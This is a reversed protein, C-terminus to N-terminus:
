GGRWFDAWWESHPVDSELVADAVEDGSMPLHRLEVSLLDENSEILAYQAGSPNLGVSGPNLLIEEGHRRVLQEHTHGGAMVTAEHGSLMEDLEEDPTAAMIRDSFSRPSGHFCLLTRGHGLSLELTPQFGRLYDRDASSLREADWRLTDRIRRQHENSGGAPVPDLLAQDVNGMITPYGLERLCEITEHPQLGFAAVDGLCLVRDPSVRELDALVRELAPLNGHIDSIVGVRM